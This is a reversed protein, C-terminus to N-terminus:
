RKAYKVAVRMLLLAYREAVVDPESLSSKAAIEAQQLLRRAQMLSHANWKRLQAEFAPADRFFVPPRHAKVAASASMGQAQREAMQELTAAHRALTRCIAVAHVGDAHLGKLLANAEKADCNFAARCLAALPAVSEVDIAAEVDAHSIPSPDGEKYLLLKELERMVIMRNGPLSQAVARVADRDISAGKERMFNQVFVAVDGGEDAYFPLSAVNADKGESFKRLASSPPLDEALLIIRNDGSYESFIEKFEKPLTPPCDRLIFLKRTSFFSAAYLQDRFNAPDSKYDPFNLKIIEGGDAFAMFGQAMRDSAMAIRGADKGYCLITRASHKPFDGIFRDLDRPPIKM